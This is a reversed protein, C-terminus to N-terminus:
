LILEDINNRLNDLKNNEKTKLFLEEKKRSSIIKGYLNNLKYPSDIKDKWFKDNRIYLIIEKIEDFKKFDKYIMKSFYSSWKDLNPTIFFPDYLEVNELLLQALQKEESNDPYKRVNKKKKVELGLIDLIEKRHRKVFDEINYIDKTNNIYTNYLTRNEIDQNEIDQNEIGQNGSQQLKSKQPLKLEPLEKVFYTFGSIKNDERLQKKICYGTDCLEQLGSDLSNLGDKSHSAVEKRRIEWNDPLSLLYALIGKAKWSLRKDDRLPRNDMIFYDKIHKTMKVIM